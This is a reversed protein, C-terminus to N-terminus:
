KRRRKEELKDATITILVCIAWIPVSCVLSICFRVYTSGTINYSFIRRLLDQKKPEDLRVFTNFDLNHEALADGVVFVCDLFAVVPIVALLFPIM